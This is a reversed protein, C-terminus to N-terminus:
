TQYRYQLIGVGAQTHGPRTLQTSHRPTPAATWQEARELSRRGALRPQSPPSSSPQSWEAGGGAGAWGMPAVSSTCLVCCASATSCCSSLALALCNLTTIVQM